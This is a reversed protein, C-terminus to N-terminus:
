VVTPLEELGSRQLEEDIMECAQGFFFADKTGVTAHLEKILSKLNKNTFLAPRGAQTQSALHARVISYAANFDFAPPAAPPSPQQQQTIPAQQSSSPRLSPTLNAKAPTSRPEEDDDEDDFCAGTPQTTSRQPLNQPLQSQPVPRSLRSPQSLGSPLVGNGVNSSRREKSASEESLRATRPPNGTQGGPKNSAEELTQDHEGEPVEQKSEVASQIGTRSSDRASAEESPRAERLNITTDYDTETSDDQLAGWLRYQPPFVSDVDGLIVAWTHGRHKFRHILIKDNGTGFDYPHCHVKEAKGANCDACTCYLICKSFPLSFGYKSVKRIQPFSGGDRKRENSAKQWERVLQNFSWRGTAHDDHDSLRFHYVTDLANALLEKICRNSTPNITEERDIILKPERLLTELLQAKLWEAEPSDQAQTRSEMAAAEHCHSPYTIPTGLRM